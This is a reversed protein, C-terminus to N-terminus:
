PATIRVRDCWLVQTFGEPGRYLGLKWYRDPSSGMTATHFKPVTNVGDRWAEVFGVASDPSHKVHLVYDHWAGPDLAGIVQHRQEWRHFIILNGKADLSLNLGSGHWQMVVSHYGGGEGAPPRFGAPVGLSFEYWREDGEAYDTGPSRGIECRENRSEAADFSTQDGPRVEFRAANEHGVGGNRVCLSYTCYGAPPPGNLDRNQVVAYQSLDGTSFDGLFMETSGVLVGGSPPAPEPIHLVWGVDLSDSTLQNAAKVADVTTGYDRALQSLTEGSAVVHHSVAM